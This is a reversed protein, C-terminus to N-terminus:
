QIFFNWLGCAIFFVMTAYYNKINRFVDTTARLRKVGAFANEVIVRKRSIRKNEKKKADTLEKGKPKKNPMKINKIDPCDKELGQFALDFLKRIDDPLCDYLKENLFLTKDHEKGPYTKSSFIIKKKNDSICINKVTHCKKKGSYFLRQKEPNKPRRKRRETGDTIAIKISPFLKLFEEKNGIKRQPLLNMKKLTWFLIRSYYHVGRCANSRHMDFNAALVDFTPYTKLYYLVFFLKEEPTKLKSKRGGKGKKRRRNDFRLLIREFNSLIESFHNSRIGINAVCSRKESLIKNIEM